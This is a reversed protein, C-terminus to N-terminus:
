VAMDFAARAIVTTIEEGTEAIYSVRGPFLPLENCFEADGKRVILMNIDYAEIPQVLAPVESNSEYRRRELLLFFAHGLTARNTVLSILRLTVRAVFVNRLHWFVDAVIEPQLFPGEFSNWITMGSAEGTVIRIGSNRGLRLVAVNTMLEHCEFRIDLEIKIRLQCVLHAGVNHHKCAPASAHRCTRKSMFAALM